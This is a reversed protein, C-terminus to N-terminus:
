TGGAGAIWKAFRWCVGFATLMLGLALGASGWFGMGPSIEGLILSTVSVQGCAILNVPNAASLLPLIALTSTSLPASEIAIATDLMGSAIVGVLGFLVGVVLGALSFHILHWTFLRLSQGLPGGPKKQKELWITTTLAFVFLLLLCITSFLLSKSTFTFEGLGPIVTHM